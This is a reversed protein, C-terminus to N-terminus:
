AVVGDVYLGTAPCIVQAQRIGIGSISSLRTIEPQM